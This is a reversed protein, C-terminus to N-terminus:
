CGTPLSKLLFSRLSITHLRPLRCRFPSVRPISTHTINVLITTSNPPIEPFFTARFGSHLTTFQTSFGPNCRHSQTVRPSERSFSLSHSVPSVPQVPLSFYLPQLFTPIGSYHLFHSPSIIFFTLSINGLNTSM